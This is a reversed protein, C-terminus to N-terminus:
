RTLQGAALGVTAVLSPTRADFQGVVGEHNRVCLVAGPYVNSGAQQDSAIPPATM